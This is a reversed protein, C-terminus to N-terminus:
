MCWCRYFIRPLCACKQIEFTVNDSLLAFYYLSATHMVAFENGRWKKM